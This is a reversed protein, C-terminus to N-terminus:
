KGALIQGGEAACMMCDGGHDKKLVFWRKDIARGKRGSNLDKIAEGKQETLNM